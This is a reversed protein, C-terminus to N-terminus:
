FHFFADLLLVGCDFVGTDEFVSDLVFLVHPEDGLIGQLDPAPQLRLMGPLM